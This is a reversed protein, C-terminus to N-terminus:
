NLKLYWTAILFVLLLCKLAFIFKQTYNRDLYMFESDRKDFINLTSM